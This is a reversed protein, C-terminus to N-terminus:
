RLFNRNELLANNCVYPRGQLLVAYHYIGRTRERRCFVFIYQVMYGGGVFGITHAYRQVVAPAYYLCYRCTTHIPVPEEGVFHRPLAKKNSGDSFFIGAGRQLRRLAPHLVQAFYFVLRGVQQSCGLRLQYHGRLVLIIGNVAQM